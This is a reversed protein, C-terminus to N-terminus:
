NLFKPPVAVHYYFRCWVGEKYCDKEVYSHSYYHYSNGEFAPVDTLNTPEKIGTFNITSNRGIFYFAHPEVTMLNINDCEITLDIDDGYFLNAGFYVVSKPCILKKLNKCWVFCSARLIKVDTLDVSKLNVCGRFACHGIEYKGGKIFKVVKLAKCNGFSLGGLSEINSNITVSILNNNGYFAFSGIRSIPKGRFKKPIILTSDLGSYELIIYSTSDSNLAYLFDGSQIKEGSIVENGVGIKGDIVDFGFGIDQETGYGTPEAYRTIECGSTDINNYINYNASMKYREVYGYKFGDIKINEFINNWQPFFQSSSGGGLFICNGTSAITKGEEGNEFYKIEGGNSIIKGSQIHLGASGGIFVPTSHINILNVKDITVGNTTSVLFVGNGCAEGYVYHININPGGDNAFRVAAYTKSACCRIGVVKYIWANYTCNLLIGCGFIDTSKITTVYLNYVNFTEIGHEACGNFTCNDIYIDYSWRRMEVNGIANALSQIRFGIYGSKREGKALAININQFLLNWCGAVFIGYCHIGIITLNCITTNNVSREIDIFAEIKYKSDDIYEETYDIYIINDGFDLIVNSPCSISVSGNMRNINKVKSNKNQSPKGTSGSNIILVKEKTTRDSTLLNFSANVCDLLGEYSDDYLIYESYENIEKDKTYIIRWKNNSICFAVKVKPKVLKEPEFVSFKSNLENIDVCPTINPNDQPESNDLGEISSYTHFEKQITSPTKDFDIPTSFIIPNEYSIFGREDIEVVILVLCKNDNKNLIGEFYMNSKGPKLSEITVEVNSNSYSASCYISKNVINYISKLDSNLPINIKRKTFPPIIQAYEHTYVSINSLRILGRPGNALTMYFCNVKDSNSSSSKKILHKELINENNLSKISLGIENTKRDIILKYHYFQSTLNVSTESDNIKWTMLNNGNYSNSEMKLLYSDKNAQETLIYFSSIVNERATTAIAGDFELIYNGESPINLDFTTYIYGQRNNNSIGEIFTKNDENKIGVSIVDSKCINSINTIAEFNEGYYLSYINYCDEENITINESVLDSNITLSVKGSYNIGSILAYIKSNGIDINELSIFEVEKSNIKGKAVIEDKSISKITKFDGLDILTLSNGKHSKAASSIIEGIPSKLKSSNM